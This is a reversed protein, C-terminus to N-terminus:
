RYSFIALLATSLPHENTQRFYKIPCNGAMLPRDRKGDLEFLVSTIMGM